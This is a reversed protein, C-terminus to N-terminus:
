EIGKACKFVAQSVAPCVRPDFADPIIYEDSLEEDTVIASLARAAAVKMEETIDKARADLAGRFIGPFALVNNIQNPFDSRGTGVVAAGAAKAKDPMIEPNPNAMAFIIPGTAMSRVMDESLVNAASVGIFADKGKVADALYGRVGSKNTGVVEAAQAPNMDERGEYLVGNKDVYTLDTVGIRRLMKGISLGAAGAGNIVVSIESIDKKVVRCANLMAASVIIATGHQDDHFVPIDCCERLRREIEFCRPASIDELNVGGFSGCLLRVTNVIEDPDKSRICLPIADIGAFEKFLLCKGEMVPMGAEPGINGLGLVATGDSVVAVTNSRNTYKWVDAKNKKIELCPVAVGPTYALSLDQQTVCPKTPVIKLKGPVPSSHYELAKEALSQKNDSM